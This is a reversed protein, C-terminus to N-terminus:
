LYGNTAELFGQKAKDSAGKGRTLIRYSSPHPLQVVRRGDSANYVKITTKGWGTPLENPDVKANLLSAVGSGAVQGMALYLKASTRTILEAWLARSMEQAKKKDALTHWRSSRFPTWQAAVTENHKLGLLEYWAKVELQMKAEGAEVLWKGFFYDNNPCEWVGGYESDDHVGGGGPNLGVLVARAKELQHEPCMFFTWGKKYGLEQCVAEIAEKSFIDTV